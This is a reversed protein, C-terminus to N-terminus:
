TYLDRGEDLEGEKGVGLETLGRPGVAGDEQGTVRLPVPQQGLCPHAVSFEEAVFGDGM